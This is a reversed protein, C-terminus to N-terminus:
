LRKAVMEDLTSTKVGGLIKETVIGDKEVFFITPFGVIGYKKRAREGPDILVPYTIGMASVTEEVKQRSDGVNLAILAFGRDRYKRYVAEALPMEKECFPCGAEWFIVVVLSGAYDAPLTVSNNKLDSVTVPPLPGGIKVLPKDRSCGALAALFIMATFFAAEVLKM